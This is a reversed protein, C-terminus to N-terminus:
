NLILFFLTRVGQLFPNILGQERLAPFHRRHYLQAPIDINFMM